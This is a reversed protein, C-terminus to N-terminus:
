DQRDDSPNLRPFAAGVFGRWSRPPVALLLGVGVFIFPALAAFFVFGITIAVLATRMDSSRGTLLLCQAVRKNVTPFPKAGLIQKSLSFM